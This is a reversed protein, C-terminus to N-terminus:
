AQYQKLINAITKLNTEHFDIQAVYQNKNLESNVENEKVIKIMKDYMVNAGCLFVERERQTECSAYGCTNKVKELFVERNM